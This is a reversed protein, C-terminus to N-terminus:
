GGTSSKAQRELYALMAQEAAQKLATANRYQALLEPSPEGAGALAPKYAALLAEWAVLAAMSLMEHQQRLESWLPDDEPVRPTEM